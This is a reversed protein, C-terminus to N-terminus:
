GVKKDGVFYGLMKYSGDKYMVVVPYKTPTNGQEMGPSGQPMGPAAVGIINADDLHKQLWAIAQMPVHGEIVKGDLLATHCSQYNPLIHYKQKFAQMNQEDELKVSFGNKQMYKAWQKCCGCGPNEHILVESALLSAAMLGLLFIKKM